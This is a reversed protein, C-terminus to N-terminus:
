INTASAFSIGLDKSLGYPTLGYLISFNIRKGMQRQENTVAELPVGFLGAATQAHIDHGALFATVLTPDQSLYALVRLEIQSYDASLFLRGKGPKFAARIEIGYGSTDAPINQLNPDSSALRGTAVQTQSFSTHIKHTVPDIYDPLADIYTSKLKSLERHQM